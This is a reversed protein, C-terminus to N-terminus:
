DAVDFLWLLVHTFLAHLNSRLPYVKASALLAIRRETAVARWVLVSRFMRMGRAM